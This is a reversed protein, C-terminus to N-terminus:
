SDPKDLLRTLPLQENKWVGTMARVRDDTEDFEASNFLDSRINVTHRVVIFDLDLPVHCSAREEGDILFLPTLLITSRFEDVYVVASILNNRNM